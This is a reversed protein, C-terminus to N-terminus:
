FKGTLADTIGINVTRKLSNIDTIEGELFTKLPASDYLGGKWFLGNVVGGWWDQYLKSNSADDWFKVLREAADAEQGKDFSAYLVANTASAAVGSVATYAM